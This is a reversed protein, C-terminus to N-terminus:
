QKKLGYRIEDNTVAIYYDGIFWTTTENEWDQDSAVEADDLATMLTATGINDPNDVDEAIMARSNGNSDPEGLGYTTGNLEFWLGNNTADIITNM